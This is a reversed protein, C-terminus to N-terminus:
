CYLTGKSLRLRMKIWQNVFSSDSKTQKWAGKIM